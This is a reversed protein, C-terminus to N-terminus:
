KLLHSLIFVFIYFAAFFKLAADKLFIIPDDDKGSFNILYLLRFVLLTFPITTLYLYETGARSITVADM